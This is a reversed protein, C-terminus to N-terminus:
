LRQAYQILPARLQARAEFVTTETRNFAKRSILDSVIQEAVFQWDVVVLDAVVDPVQAFPFSAPGGSLLVRARNMLKALAEPARFAFLAAATSPFIFARHKNGALSNLFDGLRQDGAGKFEYAIGAEELLTKLLEEKAPSIEIGRVVVVSKIGGNARWDRLISTIASERQVEYRCRISPFWRDSVGVVQVGGDKLQLVTEKAARDPQHWLVTDFNYKDIRSFLRGNQGESRDYFVTAVAFGRLRLERRTRIFFTRCDQLTVFSSTVAPMGIFGLVSLHRGGSLGQLLTKSGRVSVLIGEEELADYVRSVTSLPVGLRRAVERIPYFVQPEEQQNAIAIGRLIELLQAGKHKKVKFTLRAPLAPLGRAIKKRAM